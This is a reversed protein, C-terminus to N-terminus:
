VNFGRDSWGLMNIEDSPDVLLGGISSVEFAFIRIDESIEYDAFLEYVIQEGIRVNPAIAIAVLGKWIGILGIV